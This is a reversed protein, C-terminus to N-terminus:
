LLPRVACATRGRDDSQMRNGVQPRRSPGSRALAQGANADEPAAIRM